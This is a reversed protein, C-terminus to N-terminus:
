KIEFAIQGIVDTKGVADAPTPLWPVDGFGEKTFYVLPAGGIIMVSGTRYPGGNERYLMQSVFRRGDPAQTSGPLHMWLVRPNGSVRTGTLYFSLVVTKGLNAYALTTANAPAVTWAGGDAGFNQPDLSASEWAPGGLAAAASPTLFNRLRTISGGTVRQLDSAVFAYGAVVVIALAAYLFKVLRM